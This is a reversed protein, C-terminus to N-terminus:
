WASVVLERDAALTARILPASPGTAPTPAHSGKPGTAAVLASIAEEEIGVVGHPESV